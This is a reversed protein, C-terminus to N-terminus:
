LQVATILFQLRFNKHQQCGNEKNFMSKTGAQM